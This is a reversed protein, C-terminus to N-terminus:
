VPAQLWWNLTFYGLDALIREAEADDTIMLNKSKLLAIQQQYTIFPKPM